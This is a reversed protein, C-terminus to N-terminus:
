LFHKEVLAMFCAVDENSHDWGLDGYFYDRAEDYSHMSQVMDLADNLEVDSNGFLERKFRFRDNISLSRRMDKSMSRHLKEDLRLDDAPEPEDAEAVAPEPEFIPPLEVQRAPEAVPEPEPLPEPEPEPEPAVAPAAVPPEPEAPAATAPQQPLQLLQVDAALRSAKDRLMDLVPAPTEAGHRQMVLLLGELEYAATLLKDISTDM